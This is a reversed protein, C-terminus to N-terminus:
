IDILSPGEGNQRYQQQQGQNGFGYGTALPQQQPQQQQQGQYGIGTNLFPNGTANSSLRVQLSTEQRYGTGQSNIFTGTKTHQHPIRMDGTNGFTDIGTGQALLNNLEGHTDDGFKSGLTRQPQLQQQTQQPQSAFQPTQGYAAASFASLLPQQQQQQQQQQALANLLDPNQQPSLPGQNLAFPNNLGTKLPQLPEQPQHFGTFTPQQQPAGTTMQNQIPNGFMDFYQGQALQQQQQQQQLWQQQQLQQQQLQQQQLQQQQLQQQQLWAAQQQQLQQQQQDVPVAMFYTASNDHGDLDLLNQNQKRMEEEELSLKLAARLEPDDSDAHRSANEEEATQRLLELARQLDADYPDDGGRPRLLTTDRRRRRGGYEDAHSNNAREMRLREDDQLLSVLEKAKVRILAGQDVNNDDFHIFERLTKIIYINDKAWLVCKESGFRVLYDLVTLLKATHRWYKGKDNLRRDLMDMIELFDTQSSYTYRAIEEMENTTPGLPDNLTAQRVARQVLSYGNTVNKFTRVILKLM